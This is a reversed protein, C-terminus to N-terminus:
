SSPDDEVMGELGPSTLDVQQMVIQGEEVVQEAVEEVVDAASTVTMEVLDNKTINCNRDTESQQGTDEGVEM